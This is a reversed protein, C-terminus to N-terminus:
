DILRIIENIYFSIESDHAVKFDPNSPKQYDSSIGTMNDILKNEAKKYLGKVDREICIEIPTDMFVEIFNKNGIISKAELRDNEFPSILAVIAIIGADNLIKAINATRIVNKTRDTDSFGLDNSISNRITDGDLLMTRFGLEYLKSELRNSFYSKGSGSLGTVWITKVKHGSLKGRMSNTVSFDYEMLNNHNEFVEEVVGVAVTSNTIPDILIFGGLSKLNNFNALPIPVLLQISAYFITNKKIDRFKLNNDLSKDFGIVNSISVITQKTYIRIIYSRNLDLNDEATWLLKAKFNSSIKIEGSSIVDGRVLDIESSFRISVPQKTTASDVSTTGIYISEIIAELQSPLVTVKQGIKLTGSAIEGQYSRFGNKGRQVRQVPLVLRNFESSSTQSIVINNLYKMLSEGKYYSMNDSNSIVNDGKTASVPIFILSDYAMSNFLKEIDNRISQYVSEEYSILDMKNVAIVYHKIGMMNTIFIHRRTQPLVGKTADILVIALDAFAAGVAMNRTYQEHGPTDALIFSREKTDFYRYAVDITIGQAREDMLGDLLLSYDISDGIKIQEIAKAQDAYILNSEYILHGILTSKGDDVSGCTIFKLLDRSM